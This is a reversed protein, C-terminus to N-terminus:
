RSGHPLILASCRLTMDGQFFPLGARFWGRWDFYAPPPMGKTLNALVESTLSCVGGVGVTMEWQLSSRDFQGHVGSDRCIRNTIHRERLLQCDVGLPLTDGKCQVVCERAKGLQLTLHLINYSNYSLGSLLHFTETAGLVVGLPLTDGKCQVVCERVKGLQLTLNLINYYNYSLRSLLHFTETAGLCDVGLPLTDGKCQVVCERVKGLKLTLHLINYSNYSLGSLLHFTETAGLGVECWIGHLNDYCFLSKLAASVECLNACGADAPVREPSNLNVLLCHCAPPSTNSTVRSMSINTVDKGLM